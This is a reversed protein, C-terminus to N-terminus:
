TYAWGRETSIFGAESMSIPGSFKYGSVYDGCHSHRQRLVPTLLEVPERHNPHYCVEHGSKLIQAMFIDKGERQHRVILIPRVQGAVGMHMCVESHPMHLTIIEGAEAYRETMRM